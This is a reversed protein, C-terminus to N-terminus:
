LLALSAFVKTDGVLNALDASENPQHATENMRAWVVCDFGATRLYAGVTGGGIGIPHADVGYVEKIAKALEKVVPADPATAKSENSQIVELSIKVKHELAVKDAEKRVEALVQAVPYKPLIRMDVCFVDDGPITNVNPVNAEKKTPSLTTRNPEFLDDVASFVKKELAHIRLALDCGALFANAGRDPRSGHTQVGKTAVKLWCINKEAVEIETGEPNGGDPILILDDKRFLDHRALLHQIGFKSGVEEDAVFLLKITREPVIGQEVFALAAFVSAVLGQQNDEVGRGFVKGDKVTVTWPDSTWMSREGEPVVDLHTMIWLRSSDSKGQITALLNPRIGSAVRPDEADLRVLDDIGRGRLWSELAQAKALEGQGGSEPALAPISTLLTELEIMGPISSEIRQYVKNKVDNKENSM